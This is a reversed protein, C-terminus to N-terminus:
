IYIWGKRRSEVRFFEVMEQVLEELKKWKEPANGSWIYRLENASTEDYFAVETTRGDLEFGEKIIDGLSLKKIRKLLSDIPENEPSEIKKRLIRPKLTKGIFKLRAMPDQTIELDFYKNWQVVSLAFSPNTSSERHVYYATPSGFTALSLIQLDFVPIACRLKRIADKEINFFEAYVLKLELNLKKRNSADHRVGGIM